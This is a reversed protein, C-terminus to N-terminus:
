EDGDADPRGALVASVKAPRKYFGFTHDGRSREVTATFTVRDGRGAGLDLLAAPATGNVRTGDGLDVTMRYTVQGYYGESSKVSLVTGTLERRGEVLEPTAAKAAARAEDQKACERVAEVQADNLVQGYSFVQDALGRLFASGKWADAHPRLCSVVDDHEAKWAELKSAKAAEKARRRDRDTADRRAKARLEGVTRTTRASAPNGDCEFCVGNEVHGFSEIRGSGGCRGCEFTITQEDTMGPYTAASVADLDTGYKNLKM